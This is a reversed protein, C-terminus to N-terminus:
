CVGNKIFTVKGTTTASRGDNTTITLQITVLTSTQNGFGCQTLPESLVVQTPTVQSPVLLKSSEMVLFQQGIILPAPSSASSDFVCKVLAPNSANGSPDLRCNDAGLGTTSAVTFSASVVGPDQNVTLQASGGSSSINIHGTRAGGANSAVSYNVTGNGTTGTSGVISLWPQDSSATWAGCASQATVSVSFSGATFPASQTAPSVSISCSPTVSGCVPQIGGGGIQTFVKQAATADDCSNVRYRLYEQTWVIDGELDVFTQIPNRRLQTQYVTELQQRFLLPENRPPFPVVGAPPAGCVPRIGGGNIQTLVNQIATAHDCGNVRYRLYEQTWVGDGELDVFQPIAGRRLQTQYYNDLQQRFGLTENRPPFSVDQPQLSLGGGALTRSAFAGGFVAPQAGTASPATIARQETSHGTCATFGLAVLWPILRGARNV